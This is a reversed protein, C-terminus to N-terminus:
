RQEHSYQRKCAKPPVFVEKLRLAFLEQFSCSFCVIISKKPESIGGEMQSVVPLCHLYAEGM